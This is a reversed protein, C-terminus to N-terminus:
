IIIIRRPLMGDVKIVYVGVQPAEFRRGKALLRGQLDYYYVEAGEPADVMVTRNEFRVKLGDLDADVIGACRCYAYFTTDQTVTFTIPNDTTNIDQWNTFFEDGVGVIATEGINYYGEGYFTSEDCLGVNKIDVYCTREELVARIMWSAYVGHDDYPVWGQPLHYWSANSNGSYYSQAAPYGGGFCSFTIWVTSGEPIPVPTALEFTHWQNLSGSFDRVLDEEYVLGADNISDGLYIRLTYLDQQYVFLQVASLKRMPARMSAPLRMGWETTAGYDDHWASAFYDGSFGITDGGIAEYEATDVLNGTAVFRLPNVQSGTNSWRVFRYGEAARAAVNITDVYAVYNGNGDIYGQDAPAEMDVVAIGDDALVSPMLGIIAVNGENYTSTANGGTGGPSPALSDIAYYGDCYGGWGWNIHFKGNGDYGDLVFAHGSYDHYGAYYVPRSRQLEYLLLSDWESDSYNSKYVGRMMPSYRFYTRFANEASAYNPDGYSLVQAGSSNPSYNMNVAVGAHYSVRAVADIEASDSTWDLQDPMLDWHYTTAGFNASLTGYVPHTYSTSGWGVTPHNWYKMVQVMATAVCGVVAYVDQATDYPCYINYPWSQRWQTTLMPAVSDTALARPPVEEWEAAVSPAQSVGAARLAAINIRYGDIWDAVHAPMNEVVFTETPSYALVPRVCDDAAVLVFGKGDAPAVLYMEPLATVTLEAQSLYRRAVQVAMTPDVPKAQVATLLVVMTSLFVIRKM